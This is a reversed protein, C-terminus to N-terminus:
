PRQPIRNKIKYLHDKSLPKPLFLEVTPHSELRQIEQLDSLHSVVVICSNLLTNARLQGFKEIFYWGNRFPMNLDVCIFEPLLDTLDQESNNLLYVLHNLCADCDTFIHVNKVFQTQKLLREHLVNDLVSDDLLFVTRYLFDEKRSTFM